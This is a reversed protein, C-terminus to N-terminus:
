VLWDVVLEVLEVFGSVVGSDGTELVAVAVALIVVASTEALLIEVLEPEWFVVWAVSAVSVMVWLLEAVAREKDTVIM